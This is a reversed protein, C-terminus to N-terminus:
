IDEKLGSIFCEKYFFDNLNERHTALQEFALIFDIVSSTQGLKTLWGLYHTDREFRELINTVFDNCAFYGTYSKKHWEWWQWRGPDLYLFGVKFKIMDNTIGHLSFYHKMQTVWGDPNSSDFKNLDVKPFHGFTIIWSPHNIAKLSLLNNSMLYYLTQFNKM